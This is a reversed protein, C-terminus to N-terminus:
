FLLVQITLIARMPRGMSCGFNKQSRKSSILEQSLPFSDAINKLHESSHSRSFDGCPIYRHLAKISISNYEPM